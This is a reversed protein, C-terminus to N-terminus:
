PTRTRAECCLVCSVINTGNEALINDYDRLIKELDANNTADAERVLGKLAQVRENNEGFRAVLRDLCQHAAHEDGTRLCSLLLNEYKLWLDPTESASFLATLPASSVTAPSSQLVFPAQQSLQLAAAPSLHSPPHLLSPAMTFVVPYRKHL